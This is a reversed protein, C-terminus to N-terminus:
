STARARVKFKPFTLHKSIDAPISHKLSQYAAENNVYPLAGAFVHGPESMSVVRPREFIDKYDPWSQNNISRFVAQGIGNCVIEQLQRSLAQRYAFLEAPNKITLRVKTMSQCPEVGVGQGDAVDARLFTVIKSSKRDTFQAPGGSKNLGIDASGPVVFVVRDKTPGIPVVEIHARPHTVHPKRDVGISIETLPVDLKPRKAAFDHYAGFLYRIVGKKYRDLPGNALEGGVQVVRVETQGLPFTMIEEYEYQLLPLVSENQPDDNAVERILARLDPPLPKWQGAREIQYSDPERFGEEAVATEPASALMAAGLALVTLPRKYKDVYGEGLM